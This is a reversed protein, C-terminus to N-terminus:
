HNTFYQAIIRIKDSLDFCLATMGILRTKIFIKVKIFLPTVSNKKFSPVMSKGYEIHLMRNKIHFVLKTNNILNNM